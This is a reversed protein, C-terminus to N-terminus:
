IGLVTSFHFVFDFRSIVLLMEYIKSSYGVSLDICICFLTYMYLTIVWHVACLLCQSCGLCIDFQYDCLSIGHLQEYFLSLLFSPLSFLSSLSSSPPLFLPFSLSLYPLLCVSQSISSNCAICGDREDMFSQSWSGGQVGVDSSAWTGQVFHYLIEM